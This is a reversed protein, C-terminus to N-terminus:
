YTAVAKGWLYWEMVGKCRSRRAGESTHCRVIDTTASSCRMQWHMTDDGVCNRDPRNNGKVAVPPWDNVFRPDGEVLVVVGLLLLLLPM